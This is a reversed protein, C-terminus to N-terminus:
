RCATAGCPTSWPGWCTRRAATTPWAFGRIKLNTWTEYVLAHKGGDWKIGASWTLVVEKSRSATKLDTDFAKMLKKAADKNIVGDASMRKIKAKSWRRLITVSGGDAITQELSDSTPPLILLDCDSIVEVSPYGIEVKEEEIDEVTEGPVPVGNIEATTETKRATYRCHNEWDVYITYQGEIDGNRLLAPIVVTRLKSLSVYNELLATLADPQTGDTSTVEINRKNTPFIQNVFRVARAEIANYVIPVYIQSNGTYFQKPGLKCNYIDWFDMQDNARDNQDNFGKEVDDFIDLLQRNVSARKSIDKGRGGPEEAPDDLEDDDADPDYDTPKDLL